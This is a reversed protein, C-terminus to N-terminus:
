MRVKANMSDHMYPGVILKLFTVQRVPIVILQQGPRKQIVRTRLKFNTLVRSRLLEVEASTFANTHLVTQGYSTIGGDDMIWYGGRKRFTARCEGRPAGGGVATPPPGYYRHRTGPRSPFLPPVLSVATLLSGINVPVVKRGNSYFLNHWWTLCPLSRTKFAATTYTKGTRKDPKRIYISPILGTTLNGFVTFLLMLYEMHGPYRPELRLRPNRANKGLEIFGDGVRVGVLAEKQVCTLALLSANM